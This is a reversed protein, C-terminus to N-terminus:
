LLAQYCKIAELICNEAQSFHKHAAYVNSLELLAQPLQCPDQSQKALLVAQSLKAEAKKLEGVRALKLGGIMLATYRNGADHFNQCIVLFGLGWAICGLFIVLALVFPTRDKKTLMSNTLYRTQNYKIVIARSFLPMLM